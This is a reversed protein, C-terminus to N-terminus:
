APPPGYYVQTAPDVWTETTPDYLDRWDPVARDLLGPARLHMYEVSTTFQVCLFMGCTECWRSAGTCHQETTRVSVQLKALLSWAPELHREVTM